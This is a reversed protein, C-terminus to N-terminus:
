VANPKNCFMQFLHWEVSNDSSYREPTNYVSDPLIVSVCTLATTDMSVAGKEEYFCAWPYPNHWDTLELHRKVDHLQSCMGGNKVIVTKHTSAWLHYNVNQAALMDTEPNVGVRRYKEALETNGHGAQIGAHIGGFYMCVLSYVRM